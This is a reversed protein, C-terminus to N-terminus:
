VLTARHKDPKLTRFFPSEVLREAQLLFLIMFFIKNMFSKYRESSLYELTFIADELLKQYFLNPDQM